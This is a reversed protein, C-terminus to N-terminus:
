VDDLLVCINGADHVHYVRDRAPDIGASALADPLSPSKVIGLTEAASASLGESVALVRVGRCAPDTLHRLRVAKHDGLHYGHQEVAAVAAAFTPAEQMLRVFHDQGVGQSCPALLIIAGGDRVAWENNKIAKDAQYFTEGLPEAPQVILADAPSEIRRLFMEETIGTLQALASRPSGGAAAIIEQGNQVLNVAGVPGLAELSDLMTFISQCVPNGDIRAPQCDDGLAGAHNQQIDDHSACGITCTKHAGTFGAFYHPEVSGIALLAAGDTQDTLWPHCRWSGVHSLDSAASDHWAFQAPGLPGLTHTQFTRRAEDTFRHSGTAVLIRIAAPDVLRALEALVTRTATHRQPDNILVTLAAPAALLAIADTLAASINGTRSPPVAPSIAEIADCDM